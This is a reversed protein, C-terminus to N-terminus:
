YTPCSNLFQGKTSSLNFLNILSSSLVEIYCTTGFVSIVCTPTSTCCIQGFKTVLGIDILWCKPRSCSTVGRIVLCGLITNHGIHHLIIGDKTGISKLM